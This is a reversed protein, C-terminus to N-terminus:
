VDRTVTIEVVTTYGRGVKYIKLMKCGQFCVKGTCDYDSYIPISGPNLERVARRIGLLSEAYITRIMTSSGYDDDIWLRDKSVIPDAEAEEAAAVQARVGDAWAYIATCMENTDAEGMPQGAYSLNDLILDGIHDDIVRGLAAGCRNYLTEASVHEGTTPCVIPRAFRTNLDPITTSM